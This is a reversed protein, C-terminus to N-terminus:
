KEIKEKNENMIKQMTWYPVPEVGNHSIHHREAEDPIPGAHTTRESYLPCINM